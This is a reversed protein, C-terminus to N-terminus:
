TPANARLQTEGFDKLTIRSSQLSSRSDAVRQLHFVRSDVIMGTTINNTKELTLTQLRKSTDLSYEKARLKSSQTGKVFFIVLLVATVISIVAVTVVVVMIIQTEFDRCPIPNCSQTEQTTNCSDCTRNRARIGGDCTQSCASWHSWQGPHSSLALSFWSAFFVLLDKFDLM